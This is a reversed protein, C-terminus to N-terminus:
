LTNQTCIMGRTIITSTVLKTIDPHVKNLVNTKPILSITNATGTFHGKSWLEPKM